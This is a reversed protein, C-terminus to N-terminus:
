PVPWRLRFDTDTLTEELNFKELTLVWEFVDTRTGSLNLQIKYSHPLMLAGEARFNSFDEILEHRLRRSSNRTDPDEGQTVTRSPM